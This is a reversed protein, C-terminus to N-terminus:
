VKSHLNYAHGDASLHVAQREAPLIPLAWPPACGKLQAKGAARHRVRRGELVVHTLSSIKTGRYTHQTFALQWVFLHLYVPM